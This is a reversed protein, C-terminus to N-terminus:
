FNFEPYYNKYEMKKEFELDLDLKTITGNKM